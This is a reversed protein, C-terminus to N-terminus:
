RVALVNEIAHQIRIEDMSRASKAFQYFAAAGGIVLGAFFLGCGSLIMGVIGCAAAVLCTRFLVWAKEQTPAIKFRSYVEGIHHVSRSISSKTSETIHNFIEGMSM